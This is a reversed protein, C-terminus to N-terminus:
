WGIDAMQPLRTIVSIVPYDAWPIEGARTSPIFCLAKHMPYMHESSWGWGM